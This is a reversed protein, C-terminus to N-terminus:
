VIWYGVVVTSILVNVGRGSWRGRGRGRQGGTWRENYWYKHSSPTLAQPRSLYVKDARVRLWNPKPSVERGSTDWGMRAGQKRRM